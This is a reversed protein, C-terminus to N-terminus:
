LINKIVIFVIILIVAFPALYKINFTWLTKLKFRKSGISIEKLSNKVKWSYALFLCILVGGLALMINGFVLDMIVMFNAKTLFNVGGNSLASPIGLLFAITGILVAAKTRNWKKEDVLYSTPVELMSITSTLAAILLLIFFLIGFIYGGPMKSIIIPFAQFMLGTSVEFEQKFQEPTLHLSHFLTPFIIIGALLAVLTTSFCM